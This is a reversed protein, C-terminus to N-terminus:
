LSFVQPGGSTRNLNGEKRALCQSHTLVHISIRLAVQSGKHSFFNKKGYNNRGM